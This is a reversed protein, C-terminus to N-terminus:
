EPLEVMIHLEDGDEVYHKFDSQPLFNWASEHGYGVTGRNGRTVPECNKVEIIKFHDKKEENLSRLSIKLKVNAPWRLDGNPDEVKMPVVYISLYKGKGSGDGSAQVWLTFKYRRNKERSTYFPPSFWQLHHRHYFSFNGMTFEIPPVPMLMNTLERNETQLSQATEQVRGLANRLEGNERELGTIKEMAGEVKKEVADVMKHEDIKQNAVALEEQLKGVKEELEEMKGQLEVVKGELEEKTKTNVQNAATIQQQVEELRREVDELKKELEETKANDNMKQNTAAIEQTQQQINEENQQVRGQLATMAEQVNSVKKWIVQLQQETSRKSCSETEHQQILRREHYEGCGLSCPVKHYKCEDEKSPGTRNIHGELNRLEGKWECGQNKYSCSVELGLITREVKKQPFIKFSQCQCLPCPKGAKQIKEICGKCFHEGCCEVIQPERMLMYCINCELESKEVPGPNVPDCNYGRAGSREASASSPAAMASDSMATKSLM